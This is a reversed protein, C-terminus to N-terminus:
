PPPFLSFSSDTTMLVESILPPIYLALGWAESSPASTGQHQYRLPLAILSTRSIHFHFFFFGSFKFVVAVALPSVSLFLSYVLFLLDRTGRQAKDDGQLQVWGITWDYCPALQCFLLSTQLCDAGIDWLATGFAPNLSLFSLKIVPVSGLKTFNVEM